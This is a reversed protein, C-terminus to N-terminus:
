GVPLPGPCLGSYAAAAVEALDAGALEAGHSTEVLEKERNHPDVAM